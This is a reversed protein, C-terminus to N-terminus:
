TIPQNWPRTEFAEAPNVKSGLGSSLFLIIEVIESEPFGTTTGVYKAHTFFVSKDALM